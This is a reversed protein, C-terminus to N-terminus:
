KDTKLSSVPPISVAVTGEPAATALKAAKEVDVEHEPDAAKKGEAMEKLSATPIGSVGPDEEKMNLAALYGVRAEKEAKEEADTFVQLEAVATDYKPQLEALTAKDAVLANLEATVKTALEPCDCNGALKNAAELELSFASQLAAVLAIQEPTMETSEKKQKNAAKAANDKSLIKDISNFGKTILEQIAALGKPEEAASNIGCGAANSCAGTNDPLLALHLPIIGKHVSNYAEGRFTAKKEENVLLLYGTSLELTGNEAQLKIDIWRDHQEAVEKDIWLEATLKGEYYWPNAVFGLGAENTIYQENGLSWGDNPHDVLIPVGAWLPATAELEAGSVYAPGHEFAGGNGQLVMEQLITANYVEYVRHQHIQERVQNLAVQVKGQVQLADTAQAANALADNAALLQPATFKKSM